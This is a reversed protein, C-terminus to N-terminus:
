CTVVSNFLYVSFPSALWFNVVPPRHPLADADHKQVQKFNVSFRIVGYLNRNVFTDTHFHM